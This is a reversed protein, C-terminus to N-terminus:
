FGSRDDAPYGGDEYEDYDPTRANSDCGVLVVCFVVATCIVVLRNVFRRM